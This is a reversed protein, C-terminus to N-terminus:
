TDEDEDFLSKDVPKENLLKNDPSQPYNKERQTTEEEVLPLKEEKANFIDESAPYHPYGPLDEDTEKQSSKKKTSDSKKNSTGGQLSGTNEESSVPKNTKKKM